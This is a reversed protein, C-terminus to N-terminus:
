LVIRTLLVMRLFVTINSLNRQMNSMQIRVVLNNATFKGRLKMVLFGHFKIKMWHEEERKASWEMSSVNVSWSPFKQSKKCQLHAKTCNETIRVIFMCHYLLWKRPLYFSKLKVLWCSKVLRTGEYANGQIEYVPTCQENSEDKLRGKGNKNTCYSFVM